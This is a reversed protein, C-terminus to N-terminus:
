RAWRQKIWASVIVADPCRVTAADPHKPLGWCGAHECMPDVSVECNCGNVCLDCNLTAKLETLTAPTSTLPM